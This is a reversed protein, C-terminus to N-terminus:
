QKFKPSPNWIIKHDKNQNFMVEQLNNPFVFPNEEDPLANYDETVEDGILINKCAIIFNNRGRKTNPTESHNVMCYGNNFAFSKIKWKKVYRIWEDQFNNFDAYGQVIRDWKMIDYTAFLGLGHIDSPKIHTNPNKKM